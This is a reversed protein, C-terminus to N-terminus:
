DEDEGQDDCDGQDDDDGQDDEDCDAPSSTSTYTEVFNFGNFGALGRVQTDQLTVHSEGSDTGSGTPTSISATYSLTGEFHLSNAGGTPFAATGCLGLSTPAGLPTLTKTGTVTGSASNITFTSEFSTAAISPGIGFPGLTITGSETFTGPYPGFAEGTVAFTFTSTGLPNCTGSVTSTGPTGLESALLTEGTLPAVASSNGEDDDGNAAAPAAALGFLIAAVAVCTWSRKM